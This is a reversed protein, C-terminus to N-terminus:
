EQETEVFDTQIEYGRVGENESVKADMSELIDEIYNSGIERADAKDSASISVEFTITEKYTFM